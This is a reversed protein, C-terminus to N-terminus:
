SSLIWTETCSFSGGRQDVENNRVHNYGTYYSPLNNVGSSLAFSSNYGLKPLVWDRAQEWASKVLTGTEDYHRKGKATLTHTLRYIKNLDVSEPTEEDTEFSWTETTSSLYETFDDEGIEIGNVTVTNCELSISYRCTNYWQGENFNIDIVVPNCKMPQSGDDSQIELLKGDESFLERIAEQKRLIAALRADGSVSEDAPYGGATWFDRDKDPSGKFAVIENSLTIAFISGVKEGDDAREYRKQITALPAPILRQGNYIIRGM